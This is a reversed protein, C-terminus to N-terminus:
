RWIDVGHLSSPFHLRANQRLFKYGANYDSGNGLSEVNGGVMGNMSISRIRDGNASPITDAPCKYCGIDKGIYPGMLATNGSINLAVNTNADVATWEMYASYCWTLTSSNAPANPVLNDKFDDAYLHWAIQVQKMNSLCKTGQAQVKARALAPLLMAALIAIIAIVVLLEILTFAVARGHRLASKFCSFKM